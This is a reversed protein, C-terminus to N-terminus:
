QSLLPASLVTKLLKYLPMEGKRSVSKSRMVMALFRSCVIGTDIFDSHTLPWEVAFRLDMCSSILM